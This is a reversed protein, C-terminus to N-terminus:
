TATAEERPRSTAVPAQTSWPFEIWLDTRKWVYECSVLSRTKEYLVACRVESV